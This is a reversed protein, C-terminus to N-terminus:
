SRAPGTEADPTDMEDDDVDEDEFEQDDDELDERDDEGAPPLASLKATYQRLLAEDLVPFQPRFIMSM